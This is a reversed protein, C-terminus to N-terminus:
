SGMGAIILLKTALASAQLDRGTAVLSESSIM